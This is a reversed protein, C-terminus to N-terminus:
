AMCLIHQVAVTTSDFLPIWHGHTFISPLFLPNTCALQILLPTCLLHVRTCGLHMRPVCLNGVLHMHPAYSTCILHHRPVPLTSPTHPHMRTPWRLNSPSTDNWRRRPFLMTHDQYRVSVLASVASSAGQREWHGNSVTGTSPRVTQKSAIVTM